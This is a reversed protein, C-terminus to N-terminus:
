AAQEAPVERVADYSGPLRVRGDANHLAGLIRALLNAPNLASGGFLGSHLDREAARLVLQTYVLGRLRTTM